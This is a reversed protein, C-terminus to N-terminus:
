GGGSGQLVGVARAACLACCASTRKQRWVAEEKELVADVSGAGDWEWDVGKFPSSRM